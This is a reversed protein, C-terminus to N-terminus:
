DIVTQEPGAPGDTTIKDVWIPDPWKLPRAPFPEIPTVPPINPIGPIPFRNAKKVEETLEDIKNLLKKIMSEEAKQQVEKIEKKSLRGGWLWEYYPMGSLYDALTPIFGVDQLVHDEAIDRVAIEKKDSNIITEGFIQECIFIGWSNHLITRHRVDAFHAKTSDIFTHIKIYDKQKGGYKKASNKAHVHSKM